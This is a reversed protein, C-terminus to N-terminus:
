SWSKTLLDEIERKINKDKKRLPRVRPSVRKKRM